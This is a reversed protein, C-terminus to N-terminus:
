PQQQQSISSLANLARERSSKLDVIPKPYDKGIQIHTYDQINQPAEWPTHLFKDPMKTLEPVFRRIYKGDKDFKEGQTIPNFIRFYPAADAGCGAIWQWSASNNALDADLLTDWFWDEGHHWHLLLNKVLFSGVIMRVRNHMYGTQWLERMGADIIPYGTQGRQWAKLAQPDDRWPFADFKTQLNIRPIDPFYYLLNNSFERWGLESLFHAGDEECQRDAMAIKASHWVTRPSIEGHHLYPSLRSVNEQAPVNRGEKYGKLGNKLFTDLRAQARHEGPTWEEQMQTYWNIDPMLNLDTLPPTNTKLLNIGKPAPQPEPPEPNRELCGKKYFPTFVRYPTQDAKLTKHPEFLLAANFSKADINQATLLSKIDTDRKIRWPEYCRNWYVGQANHDKVLQPIIDTANGKKFIMADNLSANLVQLSQHLWWRSAGGMKWEGSNEDDLIYLPIIPANTNHAAILATNDTLRLDQRFWVIIPANTDPM